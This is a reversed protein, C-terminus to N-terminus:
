ALTLYPSSTTNCVEDRLSSALRDAGILRRRCADGRTYVIIRCASATAILSVHFHSLATRRNM